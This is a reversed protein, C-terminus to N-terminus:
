EDTGLREKWARLKDRLAEQDLKPPLAAIQAVRERNRAEWYQRNVQAERLVEQYDAEVEARHAAIYEMVEAIQHDTLNLRDRILMPPWDATLFDMVDYVTIRTGAISLGRETQIVTPTSTSTVAM